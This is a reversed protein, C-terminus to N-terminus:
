KEKGGLTKIAKELVKEVDKYESFELARDLDIWKVEQIGEDKQPVARAEPKAEILYFYVIKHITEGKWKFWYDIEGLEKVVKLDKIDIGVEEEVERLATIEKKEGKEIHGKPFAWKDFPDLLFLIKPGRKTKKYVIGGASFELKM